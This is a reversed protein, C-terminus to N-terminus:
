PVSISSPGRQQHVGDDRRDLIGAMDREGSVSGL